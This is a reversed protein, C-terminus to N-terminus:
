LIPKCKILKNADVKKFFKKCIYFSTHCCSLRPSSVELLTVRMSVINQTSSPGTLGIAKFCDEVLAQEVVREAVKSMVDQSDEEVVM